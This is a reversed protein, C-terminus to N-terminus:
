VARYIELGRGETDRILLSDIFPPDKLYQYITIKEQRVVLEDIALAMSPVANDHLAPM